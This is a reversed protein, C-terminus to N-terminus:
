SITKLPLHLNFRSGKNSESFLQIAGKHAEVITKVYALGLGFGKQQHLDGTQVRHFKKFIHKQESLPIGVGSDEFLISVGDIEKKLHIVVKPKDLSYKIANDILNRFANSLHFRDATVFLDEKETHLEISGNNESVQLQMGAVVNRILENLNVSELQLQFCGNEMKMLQLFREVQQNLKSSENQIIGLYREGGSTSNKKTLLKTALGINTLPTNFEHAMNNFFELNNQAIRKQQRLLYNAFVFVGSIFLIILLCAGLQVKMKSRLYPLKDPFSVQLSKRGSNGFPTLTCCYGTACKNALESRDLILIEYDLNVNYFALARNLAADLDYLDIEEEILGTFVDDNNTISVGPAPQCAVVASITDKDVNQIALAMAMNVTADFQEELLGKSHKYWSVQFLVLATMALAAVTIFLNTKNM